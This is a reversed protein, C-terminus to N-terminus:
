IKTFVGVINGQWELLGDLGLQAARTPNWEPKTGAMLLTPRAELAYTGTHDLRELAADFAWDQAWLKKLAFLIENGPGRPVCAELAPSELAVLERRVLVTQELLSANKVALLIKQVANDMLSAGRILATAGDCARELADEDIRRANIDRFLIRIQEPLNNSSYFEEEFERELVFGKGVDRAFEGLKQAERGVRELPQAQAEQFTYM